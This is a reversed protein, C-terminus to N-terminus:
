KFRNLRGSVLRVLTDALYKKSLSPSPYGAKVILCVAIFYIVNLIFYKIPDCAFPYSVAPQHSTPCM